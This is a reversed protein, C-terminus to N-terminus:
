EFILEANAFLGLDHLVQNPQCWKELKNPRACLLGMTWKSDKIIQFMYNSVDAKYYM